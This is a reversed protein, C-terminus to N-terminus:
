RFWEAAVFGVVLVSYPPLCGEPVGVTRVYRELGNLGQVMGRRRRTARAAAGGGALGEGEQTAAAAGDLAGALSTRLQEVKERRHNEPPSAM